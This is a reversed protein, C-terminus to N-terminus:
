EILMNVIKIIKERIGADEVNRTMNGLRPRINILSDFEVRENKDNELLINIGWLNDQLSSNELLLNEEDSHLEGGVAITENEIDVVAKVYYGYDEDAIKKLEERSIKETVIKL